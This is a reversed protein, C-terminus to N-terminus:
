VMNSYHYHFIYCSKRGRKRKGIEKKIKTFTYRGLWQDEWKSFITLLHYSVIAQLTDAKQTLFFLWQACGSGLGHLLEPLSIYWLWHARLPMLIFALFVFYTIWVGSLTHVVLDTVINYLSPSQFIHLNISLSM